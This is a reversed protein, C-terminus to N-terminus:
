HSLASYEESNGNIQHVGYQDLVDLVESPNPGVGIADGLSYIETIGRRRIDELIAVTPELLGHSDTFIAIQRGTYNNM